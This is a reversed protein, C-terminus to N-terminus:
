SADAYRKLSDSFEGSLRQWELKFWPTFSGPSQLFEEELNAASVYRAASIESGNVTPQDSSRGLYVSCLEFESGVDAYAAQYSFKYVFELDAHINLEDLLRRGTAVQMSEGERPHSCCSNSWYGPWLRKEQSRQQLLLRGHDDFLFISFARHLIGDGDHCDSKAMTGVQRDNADVLILQEADSSVIRNAQM